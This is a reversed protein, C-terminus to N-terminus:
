PQFISKTWDRCLAAVDAARQGEEADRLDEAAAEALAARLGRDFEDRAFCIRQDGAPNAPDAPMLRSDAGDSLRKRVDAFQRDRVRDKRKSEADAKEKSSKNRAAVEASRQEQARGLADTAGKFSDFRGKEISCGWFYGILLGALLSYVISRIM